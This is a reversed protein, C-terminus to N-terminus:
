GLRGAFNGGGAEIRGSASRTSYCERKCSTTRSYKSSSRRRQPSNRTRFPFRIERKERINANPDNAPIPKPAPPPPQVTRSLSDELTTTNKWGTEKRPICHCGDGFSCGMPHPVFCLAHFQM